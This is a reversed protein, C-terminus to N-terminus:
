RGVSSALQGTTYQVKEIDEGAATWDHRRLDGAAMEVFMQLRVIAETVRANLTMGRAELSQRMVDASKWSAVARAVAMQYRSVMEAAQEKEAPPVSGLDRPTASFPPEGSKVPPPEPPPPTTHGYAGIGWYPYALGMGYILGRTRGVANIFDRNAGPRRAMVELAGMYLWMQRVYNRNAHINGPVGLYPAAVRINQEFRTIDGLGTTAPAREPLGLLGSQWDQGSLVAAPLLL